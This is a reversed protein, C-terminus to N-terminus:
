QKAAVCLISAGFPLSIFKLLFSEFYVILTLISNIIKPLPKLDSEHLAKRNFVKNLLIACYIVPMLFFNFYTINSIGFGGSMIISKIENKVYRRKHDSIEDEGSWLFQYAPVMLIFTGRPKLVRYIQDLAAKEDDLHELVDLMLIVDAYGDELPLKYVSGKILGAGGRKKSYSLAILSEDIGIKKYFGGAERLTIGTGCGVDILVNNHSERLSKLISYVIKRRGKFWWYNEEFQYTKDYAIQKM